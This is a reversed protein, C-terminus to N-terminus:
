PTALGRQIRDAVATTERLPAHPEGAFQGIRAVPSAHNGAALASHFRALKGRAREPEFVFVPHGTACAESALNVSDATVLLADAQALFGAYPNPASAAPAAGEHLTGPGALYALRQAGAAAFAVLRAALAPPTRRSTSLWVSGGCQAQWADAVRLLRDLAEGEFEWERHPGGILVALRPAAAAALSAHARAADALWQADVANLAGLTTIVNPGELRDHAPAVIWDFHRPAIRPDLIQVVRCGPVRTRLLATAFAAARGCGIALSPPAALADRLPRPLAQPWPWRLRPASWRWPADLRVVFERCPRGLARALSLAQGRNGARGDHLVWTEPLHSLDM